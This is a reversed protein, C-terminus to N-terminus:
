TAGTLKLAAARGALIAVYGVVLNTLVYVGARVIEGERVLLQSELEFTSFTTLAGLFGTGVALRASPSLLGRLGLETVFALLFSGLVNVLLTALPFGAYATAQLAGQVLNTAAYRTLAGLAGGLMVGLILM